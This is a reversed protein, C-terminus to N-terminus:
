QPRPTARAKTDQPNHMPEPSASAPFKPPM